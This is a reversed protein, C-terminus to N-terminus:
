VSRTVLLWLFDQGRVGSIVFIVERAFFTSGESTPRKPLMCQWFRKTLSPTILKSAVSQVDSMPQLVLALCGSFSEPEYEKNQDKLRKMRLGDTYKKCEKTYEKKALVKEAASMGDYTPPKPGGPIFNTQRRGHRVNMVNSYEIQCAEEDMDDDYDDDDEDSSYTLDDLGSREDGVLDNFTDELNVGEEEDNDEPADAPSAM